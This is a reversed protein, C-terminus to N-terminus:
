VDKRRKISCDLACGEHMRGSCVGVDGGVVFFAGWPHRRKHM